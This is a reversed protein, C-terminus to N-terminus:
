KGSSSAPIQMAGLTEHIWSIIADSGGLPAALQEVDPSSVAGTRIFRELAWASDETLRVCADHHRKLASTPVAADVVGSGYAALVAFAKSAQPINDEIRDRTTLFLPVNATCAERPVDDLLSFLKPHDRLQQSANEESLPVRVYAPPQDLAIGPEHFGWHGNEGVGKLQLHPGYRRLEETYRELEADIDESEARLLHINSPPCWAQLPGFLHETLLHRFTAPHEPPLPYEDFQFFHTRRLADALPKWKSALTTYASYFGYGSPAAMMLFGITDQTEALEVQRRALAVASAAGMEKPTAYVAFRLGQHEFERLARPEDPPSDAMVSVSTTGRTRM